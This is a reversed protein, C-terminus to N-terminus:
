FQLDLFTLVWGLIGSISKSKKLSKLLPGGGGRFKVCINISFWREYWSSKLFQALAIPRSYGLYQQLINLATVREFIKLAM